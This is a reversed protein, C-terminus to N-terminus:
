LILVTAWFHSNGNSQYTLFETTEVYKMVCHLVYKAWHIGYYSQGGYGTSCAIVIWSLGLAWATHSLSSYAAAPIRNLEINYLGYVLAM